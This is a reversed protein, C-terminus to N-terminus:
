FPREENADAGEAFPNYQVESILGTKPDYRLPVIHGTSSGRPRCKLIRLNTTQREAEEEAQQNRELGFIYHSWYGVTRSGRFHRIFVRGGEEHPKGEPTALHSVVDLVIGLEKALMALQPMIQELAKREDEASTALATLHDILVSTCGQYNVLYRIHGRVVDWDCSGFNDYVGVKDQEVLWRLRAELAERDWGVQDQPHNYLQGDIKGALYRLTEDVGQEFLFLGVQEGALIRQAYIQLLIDTKGGGTAAGWTYVRGRVRGYTLQTLTNWPFPEGMQPANLAREIIDGARLMGDPRYEKAQWLCTMLEEGRGAVLMDNADKLPYTAIKAKGPALVSAAAKASVQGAEDQDFAIIVEDFKELWASYKAFYKALKGPTTGAGCSISWVPWKNGQLQSVSLADLAGETVVLRKGGDKWVHWGFPMASSADGLWIFSKDPFRLHQAVLHGQEDYHPEVHCPQGNYTSVTYGFKACTEQSIGRKPLPRCEGAPALLSGTSAVHSRRQQTEGEGPEYHM